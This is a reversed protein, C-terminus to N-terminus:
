LNTNELFHNPEAEMKFRDSNKADLDTKCYEKLIKVDENWKQGDWFELGKHDRIKYLAAPKYATGLYAHDLGAEKAWSITRWMMWKGLSHSRMYDTDFFAFWYHLMSETISALIYGVTKEATTFKLIHTGISSKLIYSWRELSMNEDGIRELIYANCFSTFDPDSLDFDSKKIVELKVDLPEMQRQIRRNESTDEFRSLDVRLSRALYFVEKEININGTYPLFGQGYIPSVDELGERLAYIAYSFTYSSYDVTNESYFLKM